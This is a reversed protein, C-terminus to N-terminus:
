GALISLGLTTLGVMLVLMAYQSRVADRGFDALARDHALAVGVLHGGVISAVQVYWVPESTTIFFDVRRDATGFLDWGLGFPDSIAAFLQQGEFIILTFYHAFAYALAIPVLTHAFRQAVQHASMETESLKAAAWSALWYGFGVVVVSGVLLVTRGLQSDILGFTIADFWETGAAGDYSVTGITAVVFVWLGPWEPIAPLARLWGRRVLRGESNRGFPAIASFLRNYPTFADFVALGTDRGAFAMVILLFVTYALAAVGLTAPDGSRPSVLELWTFAVFVVTAPWLGLRALLHPKDLESKAAIARWPNLDTYWNGILAGTFPVVLWFVVWVLVPAITPRTPDRELGFIEPVVQGIVLLLAIIGLAGLIPRGRVRRGPETYDPGGQLRPEPWLVALAVFSLVLVASAGVVFYELPVPLDARGGIGHAMATAPFAVFLLVTAVTTGVVKRM